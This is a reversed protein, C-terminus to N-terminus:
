GSWLPWAGTRIGTEIVSILLLVLLAITGAFLWAVVRPHGSVWHDEHDIHMIHHPHVRHHHQFVRVPHARLTSM